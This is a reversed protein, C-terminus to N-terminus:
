IKLKTEIDYVNFSWDHFVLVRRKLDYPLYNQGPSMIKVRGEGYIKEIEEVAKNVKCGIFGKLM